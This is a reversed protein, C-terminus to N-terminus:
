RKTRRGLVLLVADYTADGLLIAALLREGPVLYRGTRSMPVNRFPDTVAFRRTKPYYGSVVVFHGVSDGRVDDYRDDRERATRYLFTASLGTLIPDRGRLIRVLLRTTPERFRIHGGEGLFTLYAEVTRVQRVSDTAALRRELKAMLARRKLERWTPDFVRTGFPYVTPRFGNRLASLGLSVALTGGDPNRPTERVITDLDRPCGYFAYVKALCTPGCTVDDPQEFRPVDLLIPRAGPARAATM